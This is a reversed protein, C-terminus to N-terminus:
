FVGLLSRSLSLSLRGGLRRAASGLRTGKASAKSLGNECANTNTGLRLNVAEATDAAEFGAGFHTFTLKQM